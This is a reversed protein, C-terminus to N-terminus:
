VVIEPKKRSLLVHPKGPNAKLHKNWFWSFIKTGSVQIELVVTPINKACSCPTAVDGYRAVNSDECEYFLDVM